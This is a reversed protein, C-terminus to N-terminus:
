TSLWLLTHSHDCIDDMMRMFITPSNTLGFLMVLWKFLSDKSKITTKWVNSPEILGQYYGLKLDIKSFVQCM